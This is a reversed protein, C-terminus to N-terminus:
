LRHGTNERSQLRKLGVVVLRAFNLFHARPPTSILRIEQSFSLKAIAAVHKIPSEPRAQPCRCLDCESPQSSWHDSLLLACCQSIRSAVMGAAAPTRDTSPCRFPPILM